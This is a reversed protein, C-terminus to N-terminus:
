PRAWASPRGAPQGLQGRSSFKGNVGDLLGGPQQQVPQLQQPLHRRLRRRPPVPCHYRLRHHGPLPPRLLHAGPLAPPDHPSAKAQQSGVGKSM